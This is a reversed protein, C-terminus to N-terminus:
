SYPPLVFNELWIILGEDNERKAKDLLHQKLAIIEEGKLIHREGSESVDDTVTVTYKGVEDDRQKLFAKYFPETIDMPSINGFIKGYEGNGLRWFFLMFETVKLHTKVSMRRATDMMQKGTLAGKNCYQVFSDILMYLWAIVADEGFALRVVELTPVTSSYAMGPNQGFVATAEPCYYSKFEQLSSFRAKLAESKDLSGPRPQVSNQGCNNLNSLANNVQQAITKM